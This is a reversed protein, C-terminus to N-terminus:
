HSNKDIKQSWSGNVKPYIKEYFFNQGLVYLEGDEERVAHARVFQFQELAFEYFENELKWIDSQQLKAITEKTPPKKETTKRLHSKKGLKHLETAGKFFPPLTAELIMIFDELEQELAWQSDTNGCLLIFFSIFLHVYLVAPVGPILGAAQKDDLM